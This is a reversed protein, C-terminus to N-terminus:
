NWWSHIHVHRNRRTSLNRAQGRRNPGRRAGQGSCNRHRISCYGRDLRLQIANSPGVRADWFFGQDAQFEHSLGNRRNQGGNRARGRVSHSGTVIPEKVYTFSNSLTATQGAVVVSVDVTYPTSRERSIPTVAKLSTPTVDTVSLAPVGDFSVQPTGSFGAGTVTVRTQGTRPGRLRCSLSLQPDRVLFLSPRPPQTPLSSTTRFAIHLSTKAPFVLLRLTSLPGTRM